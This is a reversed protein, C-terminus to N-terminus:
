HNNPIFCGKMNTQQFYTIKITNKKFKVLNEYNYSIKKLHKKNLYFDKTLYINGNFSSILDLIEDLFKELQYKSKNKLPVDIVISFGDGGFSCLNDNEHKKYKKIPCFIGEFKFKQCM